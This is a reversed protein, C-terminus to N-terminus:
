RSGGRDAKKENRKTENQNRNANRKKSKSLFACLSRGRGLSRARESARPCFPALPSARRAPRTRPCSLRNNTRAGRRM